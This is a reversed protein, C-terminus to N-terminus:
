SLALMMNIFIYGIERSTTLVKGFILAGENKPFFTHGCINRRRAQGRVLWAFFYLLVHIIQEYIIALARMIKQFLSSMANLISYIKILM